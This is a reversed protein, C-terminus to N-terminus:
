MGSRIAANVAAASTKQSTTQHKQKLVVTNWDQGQLNMTNDAQVIYYINTHFLLLLTTKISILTTNSTKNKQHNREEKLLPGKSYSEYHIFSRILSPIFSDLSYYECGCSLYVSLCAPLDTRKSWAICLSERELDAMRLPLQYRRWQLSRCNILRGTVLM